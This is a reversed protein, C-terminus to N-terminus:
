SDKNKIHAEYIPESPCNVTHIAGPFNSGEGIPKELEDAIFHCLDSAIKSAEESAFVGTPREHWCMSAQGIAEHIKHFIHSPLRESLSKSTKAMGSKCKDCTDMITIKKHDMCRCQRIVVHCMRCQVIRHHESM